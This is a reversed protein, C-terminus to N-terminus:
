VYVAKFVAFTFPTSAAAVVYIQSMDWVVFPIEDTPVVPRGCLVDNLRTLLTQLEYLQRTDHDIAFATTTGALLEIGSGVIVGQDFGLFISNTAGAPVTIVFTDIMSTLGAQQMLPSAPAVDAVGALATAEQKLLPRM